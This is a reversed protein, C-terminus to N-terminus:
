LWDTLWHPMLLAMQKWGQLVWEPRHSWKSPDCSVWSIPLHDCSRLFLRSHLELEISVQELLLAATHADVAKDWSHLLFCLCHSRDWPPCHQMCGHCLFAGWWGWALSKKWRSWHQALFHVSMPFIFYKFEECLKLGASLSQAHHGLSCWWGCLLYHGMAPLFLSENSLFNSFADEESKVQVPTLTSVIADEKFRCSAVAYM